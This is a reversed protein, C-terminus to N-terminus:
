FIAFIKLYNLLGVFLFRSGSAEKFVKAICAIGSPEPSLALIFFHKLVVKLLM